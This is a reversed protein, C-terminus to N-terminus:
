LCGYLAAILNQAREDTQLQNSQRNVVYAVSLQRDPDGFGFSVAGVPM